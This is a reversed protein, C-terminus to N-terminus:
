VNVQGNPDLDVNTLGLMCADYDYTKMIREAISPFDLPVFNVTIGIQQLDQQILSGMRERQKNGANTILSFSVPNGGRDKLTDGIKSFGDQKLLELAANTDYAIPRLNKDCWFKNAPSLLGVSPTAHGRFAVRALDARNIASSIARRFNRSRFWAKKYAPIPAKSKTSGSNNQNSRLDWIAHQALITVTFSSTYIRLCPI